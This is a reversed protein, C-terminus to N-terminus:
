DEQSDLIKSEGLVDDAVKLNVLLDDLTSLMSGISGAEIFSVLRRDEILTEVYGTNDASVAQKLIDTKEAEIVLRAKCRAM